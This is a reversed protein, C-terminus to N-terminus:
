LVCACENLFQLYAICQSRVPISAPHMRPSECTYPRWASIGIHGFQDNARFIGDNLASNYIIGGAPCAQLDPPLDLQRSSKLQQETTSFLTASNNPAGSSAYSDNKLPGTSSKARVLMEWVVDDSDCRRDQM